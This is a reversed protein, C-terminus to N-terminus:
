RGVPLTLVPTQGPDPSLALRLLEAIVMCEGLKHRPVGGHGPSLEFSGSGM